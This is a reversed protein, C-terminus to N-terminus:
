IIIYHSSIMLLWVHQKANVMTATTSKTTPITTSISSSISLPRSSRLESISSIYYLKIFFLYFLKLIKSTKDVHIRICCLVRLFCIFKIARPFIFLKNVTESLWLFTKLFQVILIYLLFIQDFVKNNFAIWTFLHMIIIKDSVLGDVFLINEGWIM